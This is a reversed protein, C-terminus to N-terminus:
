IKKENSHCEYCHQVLLPHVKTEFFQMDPPAPEAGATASWGADLMVPVIKAVDRVLGILEARWCKEKFSVVEIGEPRLIAEEISLDAFAYHTIAIKKM